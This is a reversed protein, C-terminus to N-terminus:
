FSEPDAGFLKLIKLGFFQELSESINDHINMRSKKGM